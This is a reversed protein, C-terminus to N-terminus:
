ENAGLKARLNDQMQQTGLLLSSSMAANIVSTPLWGNLDITSVLCYQLFGPRGPIPMLSVGSGIHSIARIADKAQDQKSKALAYEAPFKASPVSVNAIHIGGKAHSRQMGFDLLTRSKVLGGAASSTVIWTVALGDGVKPDCDNIQLMEVEKVMPDWERRLAPDFVADYASELDSQLVACVKWRQTQGQYPASYIEIERKADKSVLRFEHGESSKPTLNQTFKEYAQAMFAQVEASAFPVFGNNQELFKKRAKAIIRKCAQVADAEETSLTSKRPLLSPPGDNRSSRQLQQQSEGLLLFFCLLAFEALHYVRTDTPDVVFVWGLAILASVLYQQAAKRRALELALVLGGAQLLPAAM